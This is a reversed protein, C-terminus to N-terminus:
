MIVQSSLNKIRTKIAMLRCKRPENSTVLQKSVVSRDEAIHEWVSRSASGLVNVGRPLYQFRGRGEWEAVTRLGASGGVDM